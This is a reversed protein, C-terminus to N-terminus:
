ILFKSDNPYKFDVLLLNLVISNNTSLSYKSYSSFKTLTGRSPFIVAPLGIVAISCGSSYKSKGADKIGLLPWTNM